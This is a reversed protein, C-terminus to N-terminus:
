SKNIIQNKLPIIYKNLCSNRSRAQNKMTEPMFQLALHHVTASFVDFRRYRAKLNPDPLIVNEIDRESFYDQYVQMRYTHSEHGIFTLKDEQQTNDCVAVYNGWTSYSEYRAINVDPIQDDLCHMEDPTGTVIIQDYDRKLAEELRLQMPEKAAGLIVAINM